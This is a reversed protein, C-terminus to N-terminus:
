GGGATLGLAGGSETPPARALARGTGPTRPPPPAPARPTGSAVNSLPWFVANLSPTGPVGVLQFDYATGAVLGLVTCTRPAGITSGAVPTACTGRKVSAVAAGWALPAPAVRVDYRAPAGTGDDVETFTLTASSDTMAAAALDTVGAPAGTGTVFSPHTPASLSPDGAECAGVVAAAGVLLARARLRAVRQALKFLFPM